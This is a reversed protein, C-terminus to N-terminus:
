ARYPETLADFARQFARYETEGFMAFTVSELESGSELHWSVTRMAIHAAQDLPFRYAGTSISCFAISSVDAMEEAKILCNRYCEQLLEPENRSGDWWVPGPTHFIYRQKLRFAPTIVVSGTPAGNPAVKRLHALLEPGAARHIAGDIGGGGSMATNAANVIADTDQDLVSGRVIKIRQSSM